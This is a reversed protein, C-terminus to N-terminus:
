RVIKAVVISTRVHNWPHVVVLPVVGTGDKQVMGAPEVTACLVKRMGHASRLVLLAGPRMRAAVSSIIGFKETTETGVLAVLYVVDFSTLDTYGSAETCEFSLCRTLRGLKQCLQSSLDIATPCHDINHIQVSAANDTKSTRGDKLGSQTQLLSSQETSSSPVRLPDLLQALCIATLPMPGSGLVAWKQPISTPASVSMIINLELRIVEVYNQYSPYQELFTIAAAYNDEQTETTSHYSKQSQASFQQFLSRAFRALNKLDFTSSSTPHELEGGDPSPSTEIGVSSSQLMRRAWHEELMGEGKANYKRLGIIIRTIREDNLVTNCTAEDYPATSLQMLESFLASANEYPQINPYLKALGAHISILRGILDESTCDAHAPTTQAKTTVNEDIAQRPTDAGNTTINFSGLTLCEPTSNGNVTCLPKPSIGCSVLEAARQSTTSAAM